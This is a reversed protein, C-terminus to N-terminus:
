PVKNKAVHSIRNLLSMLYAITVRNGLPLQSVLRKIHQIRSTEHELDARLNNPVVIQRCFGSKSSVSSDTWSCISVCKGGHPLGPVYRWGDHSCFGQALCIYLTIVCTMCRYRLNDATRAARAPVAESHRRCRPCEGGSLASFASSITLTLVTCIQVRCLFLRVLKLLREFLMSRSQCLNQLRRWDGFRFIDRTEVFYYDEYRWLLPWNISHSIVRLNQMDPDLIRTIFHSFLAFIWQYGNDAANGVGCVFAIYRIAEAM